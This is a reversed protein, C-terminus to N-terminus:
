HDVLRKYLSQYDNFSILDVQINKGTLNAMSQTVVELKEWECIVVMVEWSNITYPMCSLASSQKLSVHDLVNNDIILEGLTVLQLGYVKAAIEYMEREDVGCKIVIDIVSDWYRDNECAIRESSKSDLLEHTVCFELLNKLKNSM